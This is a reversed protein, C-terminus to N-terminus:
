YVCIFHTPRTQRCCPVHVQVGTCTGGAVQVRDHSTHLYACTDVAHKKNHLRFVLVVILFSVQQKDERVVYQSMLCERDCGIM